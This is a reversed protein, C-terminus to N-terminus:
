TPGAVMKLMTSKGAGNPGVLAVKDGRYMSFDVGDYVTKGDYSKKLACAKVVMDGTRPPQVFNFHIARREDPIDVLEEKLKEM